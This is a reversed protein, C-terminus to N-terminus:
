ELVQFFTENDKIMGLDYRAREEKTEMGNRLDLVEAYLSENRDKKEQADKSLQELHQRSARLESLSADGLWLRYQFHAILLIIIPILIKM